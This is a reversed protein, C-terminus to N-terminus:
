IKKREKNLEESSKLQYIRVKRSRPFERKMITKLHRHLESIKSEFEQELYGRERVLVLDKAILMVSVGRIRKYSLIEVGQPPISKKLFNLVYQIASDRNVLAM